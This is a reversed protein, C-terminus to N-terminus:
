KTYSSYNAKFIKKTDQELKKIGLKKYAKSLIELAEPMVDSGAYFQIIAKARNAAAVYAKRRMYFDATYLESRALTNRLYIMRQRADPAYPSDPYRRLFEAFNLFSSRESTVDKKYPYSPFMKEIFGVNEGFKIMGRMYYVYDLLNSRPHLRIFRDAAFMGADAENAKYHVYIANLQAQETYDGFPYHAELSQFDAQASEYNGSKMAKYGKNFIAEASMGDYKDKKKNSSCGGIVVLFIM